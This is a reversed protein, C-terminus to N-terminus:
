YYDAELKVDGNRLGTFGCVQVYIGCHGTWYSTISSSDHKTAEAQFVLLMKKLHDLTMCPKM